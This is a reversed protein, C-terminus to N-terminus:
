LASNEPYRCKTGSILPVCSAIITGIGCACVFRSSDARANRCWRLTNGSTSLWYGPDVRERANDARKTMRKPSVFLRGRFSVGNISWFIHLILLVYQSICQYFLTIFYILPSTTLVTPKTPTPPSPDNFFTNCSYKVRFLEFLWLLKKKLNLYSYYHIKQESLRFFRLFFKLYWKRLLIIFSKIFLWISTLLPRFVFNLLVIFYSSDGKLWHFM